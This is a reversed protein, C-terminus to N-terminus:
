GVRWWSCMVRRHSRSRSGFISFPDSGCSPVGKSKSRKTPVAPNSGAVGQGGTVERADSSTAPSPESPVQGAVVTAQRLQTDGSVPRRQSKSHSKRPSAPRGGVPRRLSHIVRASGGIQEPVSSRRGRSHQVCLQAIQACSDGTDVDASGRVAAPQSDAEKRAGSRGPAKSSTSPEGSLRELIEPPPCSDRAAASEGAASAPKLDGASIVPARREPRRGKSKCALILDTGM